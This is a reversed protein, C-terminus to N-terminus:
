PADEDAPKLVVPQAERGLAQGQRGKTVVPRNVGANDQLIYIHGEPGISRVIPLSQILPFCDAPCSM